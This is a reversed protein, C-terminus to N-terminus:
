SARAHKCEATDDQPATKAARLLLRELQSLNEQWDFNRRVFEPGAAFRARLEPDGCLAAVAAAFEEPTDAIWLIEGHRASIANAPGSTSVVPKGAALAELLKNQVGCAIRFPAVVATCGTLYPGIEPVTGTVVVNRRRGLRRVRRSPDRGAIVFNLEPRQEQLRPLIEEAFYEVADVNPLYDMTGLFLLYPQLARIGGSLEQLAPSPLEVGNQIVEAPATGKGDLLAAERQTAVVTAASLRVCEQECAALKRAERAYVWSLPFSAREAYLAWKASDVDVLDTVIPAPAPLPIYQFMSSCYVLIADYGETALAQHVQTQFESSHFFGCSLPEGKLFSRAAGSWAAGRGRVEVYIRRCFERLKQQRGAEEHSVAFCFLDITHRASLYKLEHYARIKEGKDPADPIRHAVFLIKM